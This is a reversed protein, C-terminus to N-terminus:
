HVEHLEDSRAKLSYLYHTELMKIPLYYLEYIVEPKILTKGILTHRDNPVYCSGSSFDSEAM